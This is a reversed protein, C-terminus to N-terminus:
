DTLMLFAGLNGRKGSTARHSFLIDPNCCTCINTITLHDATIGSSLLVQKNASWLDLQYKGISKGPTIVNKFGESRFKDAVDDSVEYCDQCISPGIAAFINTPDSGFNTSMLNLTNQAIRYLTGKWGAHSLAIVKNVPDYFFVPVCDAHQM